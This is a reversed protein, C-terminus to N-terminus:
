DAATKFYTTLQDDLVVNKGSESMYSFLQRDLDEASPTREKKKNNRSNSKNSGKALPKKATNKKASGNNSTRNKAM